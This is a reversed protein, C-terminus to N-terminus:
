GWVHAYRDSNFTIATTTNEPEDLYVLYLTKIQTKEALEDVFDLVEDRSQLVSNTFNLLHSAQVTTSWDGQITLTRLSPFSKLLSTVVFFPGEDRKTSSTRAYSWGSLRLREVSALEIGDLATLESKSLHLSSALNIALSHLRSSPAFARLTDVMYSTHVSLSPLTLHRLACANDTDLMSSKLEQVDSEDFRQLILTQVTALLAVYPSLSNTLLTRLNQGGPIPQTWDCLELHVVSPLHEAVMFSEDAFGSARAFSLGQLHPISRLAETVGFPISPASSRIARRHPISQAVPHVVRLSKLNKLRPLTSVPLMAPLQWEAHRVYSQLQESRLLEKTSNKITSSDAEFRHTSWALPRLASALPKATCRLSRIDEQDVSVKLLLHQGIIFLIEAPLRLLPFPKDDLEPPASDQPPSADVPDIEDRPLLESDEM